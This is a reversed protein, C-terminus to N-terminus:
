LKAQGGQPVKVVVKGWTDREGLAKLAEPVKELGVFEKDLFNTGRVKKSEFLEFLRDWVEVVREPENQAYAGWHLGVVSINKLLMKNTAVKEIPGGAFGVVLLRGNWAICKTSKDILGVPDYVIDVGRGKPTLAKVKQPWSEDRYDILHDAGFRKAVDLKHQTGATAVVTAGLAKAIQVAALGVGGAAAHVLVWDGKKLNCRTVLGAYSTPMTVFLGAAEFFDWGKPVPRLQQELACVKEAYGGQAAGFVKDGKKYKWQGGQKPSPSSPTAIITGSFESGSVWPLPPQHQYKGRIQLLDYFNCATAHIAITYQDPNPVPDALETVKMDQPGSVYQAIQIGKM